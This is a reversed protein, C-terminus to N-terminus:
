NLPVEGRGDSLAGRGDVSEVAKRWATEGTAGLVLDLQYPVPVWSHQTLEEELQGAGWGSYGIVLRVREVHGPHESEQRALEAALSELEGGLYLGPSVQTGGPIRDPWAHLFQMQTHDVPGGLYVPTKLSGLIPHDPLLDDVTVDLPRNVVFGLAGDEDHRVMWVVSQAFNKDPLDPWAALLSGDPVRLAEM